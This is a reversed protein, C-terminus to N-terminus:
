FLNLRNSFMDRVCVEKQNITVPVFPLKFKLTQHHFMSSKVLDINKQSTVMSLHFCHYWVMLFIVEIGAENLPNLFLPKRDRYLHVFQRRFNECFSLVLKEKPTNSKYSVPLSSLDVDKVRFFICSYVSLTLQCCLPWTLCVRPRSFGFIM